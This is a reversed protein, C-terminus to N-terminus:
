GTGYAYGTDRVPRDRKNNMASTTSSTPVRTVGRDGSGLTYVITAIDSNTNRRSDDGNARKKRMNDIKEEIRASANKFRLVNHQM